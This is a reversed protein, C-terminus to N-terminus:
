PQVEVQACAQAYESEPQVQEVKWDLQSGALFPVVGDFEVPVIFPIQRKTLRLQGENLSLGYFNAGSISIFKELRDLGGLKEFLQALAPVLVPASYIGAAGNCCEKNERLHPASDSGLFFKPDGSMAARRLTDRDNETKAIPKCFAHPNLMGGLIDDLTLVMHHLTITAAVNPGLSRVWGVSSATTIHELVVKLNPFKQVIQDLVPLFRQERDMSNVGPMEGHLCLVVGHQEMQELLPYLSEFDKVGDESNTTVGEPYLKLAVVRAEILKKIMGPTTKPTLKVTMLPEFQVNKPVQKLIEYRYALVDDVTLIPKRTNPMVLARGCHKYTHPLVRSLLEGERLHCHFDDIRRIIM